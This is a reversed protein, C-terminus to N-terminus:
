ARDLANRVSALLQAPTFPKQLLPEPTLADIEAAIDRETFGTMFVIRLDPRLARLRGALATGGLGPMVVDVVMLDVDAPDLTVAERPDSRVTLRYGARRLVATALARVLADDEVLLLRETGGRPLPDPAPAPATAPADVAPFLIRFVTGSGPESAVWITGGARDVTARVTALGLGTATGAPKTSFFPEFIHSRVEASMGIGTDSVEIQVFRGPEVGLHGDAFAQDLDVLSTEIGLWGGDPMAEAANIVLNVLILELEATDATLAASSAISTHLEVREPILRRLMPLMEGIVADLEVTRPELPRGRSFALMAKTLETARGTARLIQRADEAVADEAPVAAEILHAYGTVATLLNNFDHALGGSLRGVAELKHAQRLQEELSKRRRLDRAIVSMGTAVGDAGRVAALSSWLPIRTGDRAVAILEGHAVREAGELVRGRMAWALPVSEPALFAALTRGLMDASRFALLEEGGPNWSTLRGDLDTTAIVDGATEVIAALRSAVDSAHRVATVDRIVAIRLHRGDAGTVGSATVEGVLRRGDPHAYEVDGRFTGGSDIQGLAADVTSGVVRNPIVEGFARGLADAEAIGFVHVAGPSWLVIRAGDDTVIVADEIADLMATRFLLAQEAERRAREDRAVVSIAIVEGSPGRVPGARLSVPVPTGDARRMQAGEFQHTRGELIGRLIQRREEFSPVALPSPHGIADHAAIGTLQEAGRNWSLVMGEPSLAYIADDAQEVITALRTTAEISRRAATVDWAIFVRGAPMGEDDQPWSIVELIREGPVQREDHLRVDGEWPRGEAMAAELDAYGGLNSADVGVTLPRGLMDSAAAGLLREAGTNWFTVLGEADTAIVADRISELIRAELAAAREARVRATVDRAAGEVAVPTGADDHIVQADVECWSTSGDPRRLQVVLLQHAEGSGLVREV